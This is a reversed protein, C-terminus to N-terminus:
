GMNVRFQGWAFSPGLGHIRKWGIGSRENDATQNASEDASVIGTTMGLISFVKM